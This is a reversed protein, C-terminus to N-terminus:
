RISVTVTTQICRFVTNFSEITSIKRRKLVNTKEALVDVQKANVPVVNTIM